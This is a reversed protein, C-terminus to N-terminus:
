FAATTPVTRPIIIRYMGSTMKQRFASLFSLSLTRERIKLFKAVDLILTTKWHVTSGRNSLWGSSLNWYSTYTYVDIVDRAPVSELTYVQHHSTSIVVCACQQKLGVFVNWFSDSNPSRFSRSAVSIGLLGPLHKWVTRKWKLSGVFFCCLEM